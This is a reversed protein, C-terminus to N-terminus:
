RRSSRASRSSDLEAFCRTWATGTHTTKMYMDTLWIARASVRRKMELLEQLHDSTEEMSRTVRVHEGLMRSM